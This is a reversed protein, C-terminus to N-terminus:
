ALFWNEKKSEDPIGGVLTVLVSTGCAMAELLTNPLGESYSPIVLLKIKNLM